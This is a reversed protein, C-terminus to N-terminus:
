DTAIHLPYAIPEKRLAGRSTVLDHAVDFVQRISGHLREGLTRRVSNFSEFM